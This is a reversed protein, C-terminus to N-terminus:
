DMNQIEWIIIRRDDGVSAFHYDDLKVLRNVVHSHGGDKRESRQILQLSDNTWNWAKITKDFSASVLLQHNLFFLLDYVAYNHAPISQKIKKSDIEWVNIYADKGGTILHSEIFCSCNTGTLHGKWNELENFFTTEMLRINGDQGGIILKENKEDLTLRRIKGCHLPLCLKLDFTSGDWVCFYGDADGSYFENQKSNYCLAFVASQHQTMYRVEKKLGLNIFHIGGKNNGIALIEENDNLCISYGANPLQIAFQDQEGKNTDWRTCYRDASTTYLMQSKTGLCSDYIAGVHGTFEKIARVKM